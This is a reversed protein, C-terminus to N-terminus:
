SDFRLVCTESKILSVPLSSCTDVIKDGCIFIGNLNSDVSLVTKIKELVKKIPVYSQTCINIPKLYKKGGKGLSRNKNLPKKSFSQNINNNLPASDVFITMYIQCDAISIQKETLDSIIEIDYKDSDNKSNDSEQTQKLIFFANFEDGRIIELDLLHHKENDRSLAVLERKSPNHEMRVLSYNKDLSKAIKNVESILTELSCPELESFTVNLTLIDKINSREIENTFNSVPLTIQKFSVMYNCNNINEGLYSDDFHSDIKVAEVARELDLNNIEEDGFVFQHKKSNSQRPPENESNEIAIKGAGINEFYNYKLKEYEDGVNFDHINSLPNEIIKIPELIEDENLVDDESKLIKTELSKQTSPDQNIDPNEQVDLEPLESIGKEIPTMPLEPIVKEIPTTPLEEIPLEQTQHHNDSKEDKPINKYTVSIESGNKIKLSNLRATKPAENLINQTELHRIREISIGPYAYSILKHIMKILTSLKSNKNIKLALSPLLSLKGNKDAFFNKPTIVLVIENNSDKSYKDYRKDRQTAGIAYEYKRPKSEDKYIDNTNIKYNELVRRRGGYEPDFLGEFDLDDISHEEAGRFSFYKDLKETELNRRKQMVYDFDDILEEVQNRLQDKRRIKENQNKRDYIKKSASYSNYLESNKFLPNIDDKVDENIRQIKLSPSQHPELLDHDTNFTRFREFKNQINGLSFSYECSLILFPFFLFINTKIKM